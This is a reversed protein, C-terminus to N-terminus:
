RASTLRDARRPYPRDAIMDFPPDCLVTGKETGSTIEGCTQLMPSVPDDIVRTWVRPPSREGEPTQAPLVVTLVVAPVVLLLAGGLVAAAVHGLFRKM